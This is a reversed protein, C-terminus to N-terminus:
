IPQWRSKASFSALGGRKALFFAVGVEPQMQISM